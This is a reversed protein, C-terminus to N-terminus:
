GSAVVVADAGVGLDAYLKEREVFLGAATSGGELELVGLSRACALRTNVWLLLVAFDPELTHEDASSEFSNKPPYGDLSLLLDVVRGKRKLVADIGGEAYVQISLGTPARRFSLKM